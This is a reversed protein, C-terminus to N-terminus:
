KKLCWFKVITFSFVEIHLSNALYLALSYTFFSCILFHQSPSAKLATGVKRRQGKQETNCMGTSIFSLIKIIKGKNNSFPTNLFM